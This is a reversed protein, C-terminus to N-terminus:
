DGALPVGISDVLDQLPTRLADALSGDVHRMEVLLADVAAAFAAVLEARGLSGTLTAYLEERLQTPLDDWGRGHHPSLGHRLCALQLIRDRLGSLMYHTQWFRQRALSSRVHLAHLWASGILASASPDAATQAEGSEGFILRFATGKPGFTSPTWFSLDVQLTSRLLFVRYLTGGAAVDHHTVADHSAYLTATWDDVVEQLRGGEAVCIAFDIDSWRDLRDLAMSGLHASATVRGDSRARDVLTQRLREREASTFVAAVRKGPKGM